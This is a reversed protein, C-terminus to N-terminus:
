LLTYPLQNLIFSAQPRVYAHTPPPPSLFHSVHQLAQKHACARALLHLQDRFTPLRPTRAPARYPQGSNHMGMTQDQKRSLFAQSTRAHERTEERIYFFATPPEPRRQLESAGHPVRLAAHTTESTSVLDLDIYSHVSEYFLERDITWATYECQARGGGCRTAISRAASRKTIQQGAIACSSGSTTVGAAVSGMVPQRGGRHALQHWQSARLQRL